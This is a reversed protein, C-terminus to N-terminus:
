NRCLRRGDRKKLFCGNNTAPTWHGPYENAAMVWMSHLRWTGVHDIAAESRGHHGHFPQRGRDGTLARRANGLQLGLEEWLQKLVDYYSEERADGRHYQQAVAGLYREVSARFTM